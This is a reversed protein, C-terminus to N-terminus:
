DWDPSAFSRNRWIWSLNSSSRPLGINGKESLVRFDTSLAMECGGGLAQGYGAQRQFRCIKSTMLYPMPRVLYDIIVEESEM